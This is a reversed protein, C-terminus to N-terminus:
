GISDLTITANISWNRVELQSKQDKFDNLLEILRMRREEDRSTDIGREKEGFIKKGLYNIKLELLETVISLEEGGVQLDDILKLEMLSKNLAFNGATKAYNKNIKTM